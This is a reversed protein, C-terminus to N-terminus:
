SVEIIDLEILKQVSFKNVKEHNFSRRNRYDKEVIQAVDVFNTSNYDIKKGNKVFFQLITKFNNKM